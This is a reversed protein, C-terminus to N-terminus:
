PVCLIRFGKEMFVQRIRDFSSSKGGCPGGTVVIKYVPFKATSRAWYHKTPTHLYLEHTNERTSRLESEIAELVKNRINKKELADNIIYGLLAAASIATAVASKNESISDIINGM